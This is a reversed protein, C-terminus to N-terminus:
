YAKSELLAIFYDKFVEKTKNSDIHKSELWTNIHQTTISSCPLATKASVVSSGFNEQCTTLAAVPEDYSFLVSYKVLPMLHTFTVETQNSTIPTIKIQDKPIASFKLAEM